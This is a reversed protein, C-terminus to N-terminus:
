QMTYESAYAHETPGPFRRTREQYSVSTLISPWGEEARTIRQPWSMHPHAAAAAAAAFARATPTAGRTATVDLRAPRPGEPLDWRGTFFSLCPRWTQARRSVAVVCVTLSTLLRSLPSPHPDRRSAACGCGRIGAVMHRHRLAWRYSIQDWQHDDRSGVNKEDAHLENPGSLLSNNPKFFWEILIFHHMM